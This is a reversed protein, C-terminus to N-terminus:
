FGGQMATEKLIGSFNDSHVENKSEKLLSVLHPSFVMTKWITQRSSKMSLGRYELVSDSVARYELGALKGAEDALPHLIHALTPSIHQSQLVVDPM